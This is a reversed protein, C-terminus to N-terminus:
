QRAAEAAKHFAALGRPDGELRWQEKRDIDFWVLGYLRHKSVAAFLGAIQAPQQPGPAVGTEAIFVPDKTFSRIDAYQKGFISGFTQGPRQYGDVGIWNVYAAGPWWQGAKSGGHDPDWCWTVNHVHAAAFVNHIHRWAAVFTAPSTRPRGWPYWSGNMEHGFSLAVRCGFERVSAAYRRLYTDYRGAAVRALSVTRPNLQILPLAGLRAAQGAEYRPFPRPFASYFEVVGLRVGTASAFSSAAKTIPPNIAVGTFPVAVKRDPCSIGAQRVSPPSSPHLLSSPHLVSGPRLALLLGGVAVTAAVPLTLATLVPRKM